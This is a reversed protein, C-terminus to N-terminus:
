SELTEGMNLYKEWYDSWAEKILRTNNLDAVQLAKGLNKVFSGGWKQMAKQVIYAEENLTRM